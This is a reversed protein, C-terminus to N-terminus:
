GMGASLLKPLLSSLGALAGKNRSEGRGMSRQLSSRERSHRGRGAPGNAERTGAAELYKLIASGPGGRDSSAVHEVWPFGLSRSNQSSGGALASGPQVFSSRGPGVVM